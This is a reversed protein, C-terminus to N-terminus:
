KENKVLPEYLIKCLKNNYTTDCLKYGQAGCTVASAISSSFIKTWKCKACNPIIKIKKM